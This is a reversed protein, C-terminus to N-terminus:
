AAQVPRPWALALVDAILEPSVNTDLAQGAADLRVLFAGIAGDPLRVAVATLDELLDPDHVTSREGLGVRALDLALDRWLDILLAADSRREQATARAPGAPGAAPADSGSSPDPSPTADAGGDSGDDSVAPATAPAVTRGGRRGRVPEDM